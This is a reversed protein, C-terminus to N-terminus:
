PPMPEGFDVGCDACQDADPSIKSRCRPCLDRRAGIVIFAILAVLSLAWWCIALTAPWKQLLGFLGAVFASITLNFMVRSRRRLHERITLAGSEM